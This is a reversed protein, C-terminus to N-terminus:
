AQRFMVVALPPIVVAASQAQNHWPTPDTGVGGMNGRNGGGYIEADTNLVESWRGAAPFGLRYSTREVPTFNGAIVIM